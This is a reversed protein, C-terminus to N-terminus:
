NFMDKVYWQKVVARQQIGIQVINFYHVRHYSYSCILNMDWIFYMHRLFHSYYICILEDPVSLHIISIFASQMEYLAYSIYLGLCLANKKYFMYQYTWLKSFLICLFWICVFQFPNCGSLFHHFHFNQNHNLEIM